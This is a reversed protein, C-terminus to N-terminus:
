EFTFGTLDALRRAVESLEQVPPAEGFRLRVKRGAVDLGPGKAM